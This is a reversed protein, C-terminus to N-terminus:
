KSFFFLGFYTSWTISGTTNYNGAVFSKPFSNSLRSAASDICCGCLFISEPAGPVTSLALYSIEVSLELFNSTHAVTVPYNTNDWGKTLVFFFYSGTGQNNQM